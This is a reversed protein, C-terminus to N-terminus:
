NSQVLPLSANTKTVIDPILTITVNHIGQRTTGVTISDNSLPLANRSRVWQTLLKTSPGGSLHHLLRRQVPTYSISNFRPNHTHRELTRLHSRAPIGSYALASTDNQVEGEDLNSLLTPRQNRNPPAHDFPLVILSVPSQYPSHRPIRANLLLTDLCFPLPSQPSQPIKSRNRNFSPSALFPSSSTVAECVSALQPGAFPLLRPSRTVTSWIQAQTSAIQM